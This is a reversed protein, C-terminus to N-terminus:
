RSRWHGRGRLFKTKRSRYPVIAAPDVWVTQCTTPSDWFAVEAHGYADRGIFRGLKGICRRIAKQDSRPLGLMLERPARTLTVPQGQKFGVSRRFPRWFPM